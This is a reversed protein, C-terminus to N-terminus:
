KLLALKINRSPEYDPTIEKIADITALLANHKTVRKGKPIIGQIRAADLASGRSSVRLGTVIELSLAHAVQLLTFRRINEKGEIVVPKSEESM